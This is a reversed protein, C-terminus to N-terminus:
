DVEFFFLVIEAIAWFIVLGVALEIVLDM